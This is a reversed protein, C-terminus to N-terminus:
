SWVEFSPKQGGGHVLMMVSDARDPSKAGAPKKDVRIRGVQTDWKPQAIQDLLARPSPPLKIADREHIERLLWYGEANMNRYRESNNAGDGGRFERVDFGLARLRDAVGKGVGVSDVVVTAGPEMLGTAKDATAMTDAEGWAEQWDIDCARVDRVGTIRGRTLVTFDSGGEAVDLGYRVTPRERPPLRSPGAAAREIWMWPVLQGESADPFRSDYFVQFLAPPTDERREQVFAETVRGEHVGRQWPIVIRHYASGEQLARYFRGGKNWPNGVLFLVGHAPNDGLMRVVKPWAEETILDCEDAVVVDAGFGMIRDADDAASFVSLKKGNRLDLRAKSLERLIRDEGKRGTVGMLRRGLPSRAMARVYEERILRAQKEAPGVCAVKLPRSDMITFIALGVGAAFTKGFRTHATIAVRKHDLFAFCAAIEAQGPTLTLDFLARALGAADREAHMRALTTAIKEERSSAAIPTM